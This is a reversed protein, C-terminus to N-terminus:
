NNRMKGKITRKADPLEITDTEKKSCRDLYKQILNLSVIICVISVGLGLWIQQTTFHQKIKIVFSKLYDFTCVPWQFPKVVANINASEDPIPIVFAYYDYISPLTLNVIQNRRTTPVVNKILLDAQHFQFQAALFELIVGGKLPGTLGKRNGSWLPQFPSFQTGPLNM